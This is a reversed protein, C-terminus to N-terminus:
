GPIPIVDEGQALVWALTLQGITVGKKEALSALKDVLAVNKPFNEESWRPMNLRADTPELDARSRIKGGLMGRGLPSYAVVAVGLERCTRLLDYRPDEIDLSFPSYEVQVAAIPHVAHARRLSEASCESLGLFRAKGAQVFEALAAVSHEVPVNRDLRHMYLLDIHSVGLRELLKNVAGRISRYQTQIFQRVPVLERVVGARRLLQVEWGGEYARSEVGPVLLYHTSNPENACLVSSETVTGEFRLTASCASATTAM